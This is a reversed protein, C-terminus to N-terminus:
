SEWFAKKDLTDVNVGLDIMASLDEGQRIIEMLEFTQCRDKPVQVFTMGLKEREPTTVQIFSTWAEFVSGDAHYGPVVDGKNEHTVIVDRGDKMKAAIEM